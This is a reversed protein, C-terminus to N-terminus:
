APQNHRAFVRTDGSQLVLLTDYPERHGQPTEMGPSGLPMAPVAVGVATPREALLRIVDQAPVHGEVLYGGILGTHCSALADPLGRSSRVSQLSPLVTITTTFGAERMHAIWADCCACTPTKFVTLNRSPRTQTCATGTMGVFVAAGLFLRRNLAVSNM